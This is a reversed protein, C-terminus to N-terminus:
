ITVLDFFGSMLMQLSQRFFHCIEIVAKVRDFCRLTKCRESRPHIDKVDATIVETEWFPFSPSFSLLLPRADLWDEIRHIRGLILFHIRQNLLSEVIHLSSVLLKNTASGCVDLESPRNLSLNLCSDSQSSNAVTLKRERSEYSRNKKANDRWSNSTNSDGRYDPRGTGMMRIEIKLLPSLIHKGGMCLEGQGSEERHRGTCCMKGDDNWRSENLVAM